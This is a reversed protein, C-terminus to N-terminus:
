RFATSSTADRNLLISLRCLGKKMEDTPRGFGLRVHSSHNFCTGPVLLVKHQEALHRCFSLVDAVGPLRPFVCVGGQPLTGEIAGCNEEFWDAVIKLNTQALELRNAVVREANRIVHEAVLEVLPSLHLTLYDRICTMDALIEPSALCWGVRLGPLGYAKSLTGTSIAREYKMVPDDLPPQNYTLEAFAADWVLYAGVRAVAAILEDQQQPTM